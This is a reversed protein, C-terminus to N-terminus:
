WKMLNKEFQKTATEPANFFCGTKCKEGAADVQTAVIDVKRALFRMFVIKTKSFVFPERPHYRWLRGSFLIRKSDGTCHLGWGSCYKICPLMDFTDSLARRDKSYAFRLFDMLSVILLLIWSNELKFVIEKRGNSVKSTFVSLYQASLYGHDTLYLRFCNSFNQLKSTCPLLCLRRYKYDYSYKRHICPGYCSASVPNQCVHTKYSAKRCRDSQEIKKNRM